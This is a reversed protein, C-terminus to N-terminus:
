GEKRMLVWDIGDGAKATGALVIQVTARTGEPSAFFVSEEINVPFGSAHFIWQQGGPTVLLAASGDDISDIRIQPHLHFRIAFDVNGPDGAPGAAAIRDFGELRSGDSGLRFIREHILGPNLGYGDHSASIEIAGGGERRQVPVKAPGSLILGELLADMGGNGAFTCSSVDNLVLTSHAATFRSAQRLPGSTQPSAGCNVVIREGASSMEFSLAGAHAQSSFEAVPARGTECIVITEGAEMRQYGTAIANMLPQARADDYALVTSLEDQATPGMGNFLAIAGDSHRFLRLMPIMRDIANNLEPPVAISRALYAQRLPLLDLLLNILTPPNRGAHGGDLLIQRSLLYELQRTAKRQQADAGDTCLVLEALAIAAILRTNVPSGHGAGRRLWAAHRGLSRMFRQYFDIEAGELIIPSHNLWALLRQAAVEPRWAISASPRGCYKLWDEVLARANAKALPTAAARLHRLWGFSMLSCEWDPSPSVVQFPSDGHVNVIKSGFAFYGAYIDNAITPDATRIDQPAIVLQGPARAFISTAITWPVITRRRLGLAGASARLRVLRFREGIGPATM